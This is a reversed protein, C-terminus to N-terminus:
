PQCPTPADGGNEPTLLTEDIQILEGDEVFGRKRCALVCANVIRRAKAEANYLIGLVGGKFVFGGCSVKARDSVRHMAVAPQFAEGFVLGCGSLAICLAAAVCIRAWSM